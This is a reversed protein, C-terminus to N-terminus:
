EKKMGESKACKILKYILEVHFIKTIGSSTTSRRFSLNRIRIKKVTTLPRMQVEVKNYLISTFSSM